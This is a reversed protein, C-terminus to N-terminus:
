SNLCADELVKFLMFMLVPDKLPLYELSVCSVRMEEIALRRMHNNATEHAYRDNIIEIMLRFNRSVDRRTRQSRSCLDLLRWAGMERSRVRYYEKNWDM